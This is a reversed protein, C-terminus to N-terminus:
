YTQGETNIVPNLIHVVINTCGRGGEEEVWCCGGGRWGLVCVKEGGLREVWYVSQLASCCM